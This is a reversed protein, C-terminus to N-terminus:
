STNVDQKMRQFKSQIWQTTMVSIGPVELAHMSLKTM